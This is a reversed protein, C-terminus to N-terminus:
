FIMYPREVHAMLLYLVSTVPAIVELNLVRLALITGNGWAGTQQKRLQDDLGRPGKYIATKVRKQTSNMPTTKKQKKIWGDQRATYSTTNASSWRASSYSHKWHVDLLLIKPPWGTTFTAVKYIQLCSDHYWKYGFHVRLSICWSM